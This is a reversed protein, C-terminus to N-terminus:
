DHQGEKTIPTRADLVQRRGKYYNSHTVKAVELLAKTCLEPHLARAAEVKRFARELRSAPANEKAVAARDERAEDPVAQM